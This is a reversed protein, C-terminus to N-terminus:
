DAFSIDTTARQADDSATPQSVAILCSTRTDCRRKAVGFPGENVKFSLSIKGMADSKVGAVSEIDCDDSTTHEGSACQVAVLNTSPMFGSGTIAVMDGTHLSVSPTVTITPGTSAQSSGPPTSTSPSAPHTTTVVTEISTSPGVLSEVGVTLGTAGLALIAIGIYALPSRSPERGEARAEARSFAFWVIVASSFLMCASILLASHLGAQFAGKAVGIVKNVLEPDAAAAKNQSVAQQQNQPVGGHTVAEIVISQFNAPIGLSQLKSVLATNLQGNVASGLAAVGVVAGLERSTNTMAAAMGSHREEVSDMATTVVPVLGIGFGAGAIALSWSLEAFGVKPGLLSDVILIGVGAMLCGVTMPVKAGVRAVWRGALASAVVMIVAMPLFDLALGFPSQNALLQLYLAVFFFISFIGFYKTFAVLNSVGFRGNVLLRLNLMPRETRLEVVAFAVATVASFAFLAMIWWTAYGTSEGQIVGFIVSALAVAGLTAGLWDVHAGEPDASEPVFMITAVIAAASIVLNFWFVLRWNWVGVLIGAIVPGLALATGSVAAWIGMARARLDREEYVHRIISLTGPESGAAGVGMVVRGILLMWDTTALAAVVSGVAFIVLGGVMVKRRGFLDGLMGGVLMLSVFALAYGNVVWQLTQVGAHLDTQIDALTVSVVTNDLFTVFLVTCLVGLIVSRSRSSPALLGITADSNGAVAAIRSPTSGETVTGSRQDGM